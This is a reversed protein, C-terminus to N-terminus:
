GGRKVQEHTFMISHYLFFRSKDLTPQVRESRPRAPSAMDRDSKGVAANASSLSTVSGKASSAAASLGVRESSVRGGSSAAVSSAESSASSSFTRSPGARDSSTRGESSNVSSSARASGSPPSASAEWGSIAGMEM